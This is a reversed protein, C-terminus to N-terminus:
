LNDPPVITIQGGQEEVWPTLEQAVAEVDMQNADVERAPNPQAQRSPAAAPVAVPNTARSPVYESALLLKIRCTSKLVEGLADQIEAKRQPDVLKEKLFPYPFTIILEDGAVEVPKCQTRLAGETAPNRQRVAHLMMEWAQEVQSLSLMGAPTEKGATEEVVQEGVASSPAETPTPKAAPASTEQKGAQPAETKPQPNVPQASPRLTQYLEAGQRVAQTSPQPSEPHQVSDVLAMELPLQPITQLGHRLDTVADNFLRIARLLREVSIRQALGEMEAAQEETASLLRTGAGERILLLGRLYEIVERGFQRPDAGDGVADNILDLGGPLDGDVLKAALKAAAESAVTGLVMKAQDLTIESGYSALQDLLSIADRMAGTTHHAIFLLAGREVTMQEQQAIYALRDVVAQVPIRGFDFRQCRSTITAPIKHPDTTVLAFIVHPPPEELTKLLANFAPETLMHAEDLVYVKYQGESPRFGVRERIDRIEDIGRNSAADIEILDLLRGENIARCISCENCPRQEVPALCNVAKALLRATTTKGTGRPGTFLYAHRIKGHRLANKLTRTIPEQGVVDEFTQPRYKLYLAQATM